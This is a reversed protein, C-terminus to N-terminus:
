AEKRHKIFITIGLTILVLSVCAIVVYKIINDLTKPSNSANKVEKKVKHTNTITYGKEQNGSIESTYGKTTKEKVTYEIREGKSYMDLENFIYVWNNESTIEKTDILKGNAYLEVEVSNPRIKDHNDEDVWVKNVTLSTQEPTYKNTIDFGDITNEHGTPYEKIETSYNDVADETITYKIKVNNKTRDLNKFEYTWDDDSSITKSDIKVGDALLNITINEPRKGDQDDNDDWIKKGSITIKEVSNNGLSETKEIGTGVSGVKLPYFHAESYGESYLSNVIMAGAFHLEPTEVDANPAIVHGIFPSKETLTLFTANPINWVINGYYNDYFQNKGGTNWSTSGGFYDNTYVKVPSNSNETGYGVIPLNISGTDKITIITLEDKNKEYDEFIINKVDNINEITYNGGIKLHINDNDDITLKQGEEIKEQQAVISDYLTKFDIYNDKKEFGPKAVDLRTTYYTYVNDDVALKNNATLLTGKSDYYKYNINKTSIYYKRQSSAINWYVVNDMEWTPSYTDNMIREKIYSYSEEDTYKLDLRIGKRPGIPDSVFRNGDYEISQVGLDGNILFNGGIHFITATGNVDTLDKLKTNEGYNKQGLTVVSYNKLLEDISYSGEYYDPNIDEIRSISTDVVNTTLKEDINYPNFQIATHKGFETSLSNVLFSNEYHAEVMDVDANPAVIHGYYGAYYGADAINIYRANPMNWVINGTCTDNEDDRGCYVAGESTYNFRTGNVTSFYLKPMNYIYTGYYNFLYLANPDYNAIYINKWADTIYYIGPELVVYSTPFHNNIANPYFYNKYIDLTMDQMKKGKDISLQENQVASYLKNFDLYDDSIYTPYDFKYEYNNVVSLGDSNKTLENSSGLFINTIEASEISGPRTHSDVKGKIYSSVGNTKQAYENEYTGSGYYNGEILVPGGVDFVNDISGTTGFGHWPYRGRTLSHVPKTGFTVVNYNRLLYEINYEGDYKDYAYTNTICFISMIMIFLFLLIKKKM